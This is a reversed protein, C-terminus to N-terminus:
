HNSFVIIKDRKELEVKIESQDGEFLVMKGGPKVYGLAITPNQRDKPVAPDVSAYYVARIFEDATCPAPISKFFQSVKKTYIEKSEYTEAGAEDYSLIDTYFDFLVDKDGLQTIMKSIYRNSIVVTNNSLKARNNVKYSDIINYHKPDIIEVVVDISEIDFGPDEELRDEIIDQM